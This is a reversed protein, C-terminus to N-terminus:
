RKKRTGTKMTQKKMLKARAAQRKSRKLLDPGFYGLYRERNAASYVSTMDRPRAAKAEEMAKRAAAYTLTGPGAVVRLNDRM